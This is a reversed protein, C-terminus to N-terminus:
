DEINYDSRFNRIRLTTILDSTEILQTDRAKLSNYRFCWYNLFNVVEFATLSIVRFIKSGSCPM